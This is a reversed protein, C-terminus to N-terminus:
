GWAWLEGTEAVAYTRAGGAAVSVLQMGRLAEVPKPLLERRVDPNGLTSGYMNSGWAYVMGDEALALAHSIGISLSRVGLGRLAEVRKPSPQDEEDGHGLVGHPSRGWSFLEGAEGVAFAVGTGACVWRVRVGEGFGEVLTPNLEDAAEARLASGWSFASGSQTVAYSREATASISLVGQFGGILVPVSRVLRDGHGLQGSFNVGWSYVRGDWTLALSHKQGAAVSRVRNGVMAAVPTPDSYYTAEEDRLGVPGEVGCALLQGTADV